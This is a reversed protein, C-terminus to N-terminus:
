LIAVAESASGVVSPRVLLCSLNFQALQARLRQLGEAFEISASRWSPLEMMQARVAGTLVHQETHTGHTMQIESHLEQQECSCMPKGALLSRLACLSHGYFETVGIWAMRRLGAVTHQLLQENKTTNSELKQQRQIYAALTLNPKHKHKTHAFASLMHAIPERVMTFLQVGAQVDLHGDMLQYAHGEASALCSGPGGTANPLVVQCPQDHCWTTHLPVNCPTLPLLRGKEVLQTFSSGGTKPPHVFFATATLRLRPTPENILTRIPSNFTRMFTRLRGEEHPIRQVPDAERKAELASLSQLLVFLMVFLHMVNTAYGGGGGLRM